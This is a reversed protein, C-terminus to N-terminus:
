NNHVCKTTCSYFNVPIAPSCLYLPPEPKRSIFVVCSMPSSVFSIHYLSRYPSILPIHARSHPHHIFSRFVEFCKCLSFYSYRLPVNFFTSRGYHRRCRARDEGQTIPPFALLHHISPKYPVFTAIAIAIRNPILTATSPTEEKV